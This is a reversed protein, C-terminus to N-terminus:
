GRGVFPMGTALITTQLVTVELPLIAIQAVIAGVHRVDFTPEPKLSDDAQPIGASMTETMGTAANGIDVQTCSINHRRGDLAISKTLGTVGHKTVTYAASFSRPTHASISGNNIIRGGQPDQDRMLRFAHQACLFYGTLNVDLAQQWSTFDVDGFETAQPFMGANNVLLDLRGSRELARDFLAGVSDRDVVDTSFAEARGADCLGATARLAELDRGALVVYWGDAALSVSIARGVGSGAGTM